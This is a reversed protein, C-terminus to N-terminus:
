AYIAYEFKTKPNKISIEYSEDYFSVQSIEPGYIKIWTGLCTWCKFHFKMHANNKLWILLAPFETLHFHKCVFFLKTHQTITISQHM